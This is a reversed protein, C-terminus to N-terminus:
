LHKLQNCMRFCLMAHHSLKAVFLSQNTPQCVITVFQNCKLTLMIYSFITHPSAMSPFHVCSQQSLFEYFKFFFALIIKSKPFFITQETVLELTWWPRNCVYMGAAVKGFKEFKSCYQRYVNMTLKWKWETNLRCFLVLCYKQM